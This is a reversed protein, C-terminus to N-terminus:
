IWGRRKFAALLTLAILLMIVLILPYGMEWELEPMYKFNMGYVGAIFTLPIFITSIITLVKMVQNMKNSVNALYIELMGGLIDRFSEITDIVQVTHDYVDRLFLRTEVSILKSEHRDLISIVERLPWVSKRLLIVERKLRHITHAVSPDDKDLIQEELVEIKESIKELVIFYHDVISDIICYALFDAGDKRIRGKSTRLRERLPNFVDGINEQFSIVTNKFLVMSFQEPRVENLENDFELMKLVIFLYDDHEDIKPRQTTHLIDELVLPHINYHQGLKEIETINHIGDLNIWTVRDSDKYPFSEVASKLAREEISDQNYDFLTIRIPANTQDGVYVLSGPPLGARKLQRQKRRKSRSSLQKHTIENDEMKTSYMKASLSQWLM